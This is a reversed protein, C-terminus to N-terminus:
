NFGDDTELVLRFDGIEAQMPNSSVLSYELVGHKKLVPLALPLHVEVIWNIFEEHSHQPQRYHTVTYKLPQNSTDAM